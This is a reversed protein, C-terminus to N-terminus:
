VKIDLARRPISPREKRLPGSLQIRAKKVAPLACVSQGSHTFIYITDSKIKQGPIGKRGNEDFPLRAYKASATFKSYEDQVGAIRRSIKDLLERKKGSDLSARKITGAETLLMSVKHIHLNHVNRKTSRAELMKKYQRRERKIELAEEYLEPRERKLFELEQKSLEKGCRLKGDLLALASDKQLKEFQERMESVSDRGVADSVPSKGQKKLEWQTRLAQLKVASQAAAISNINM